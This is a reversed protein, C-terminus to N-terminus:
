RLVIFGSAGRFDSHQIQLWSALDLTPYAIDVDVLMDTTANLHIAWWLLDLTPPSGANATVDNRARV